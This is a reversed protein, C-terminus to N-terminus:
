NRANRKEEPIPCTSESVCHADRPRANVHATPTQFPLSPRAIDFRNDQCQSLDRVDSPYFSIFFPYSFLKDKEHPELFESM